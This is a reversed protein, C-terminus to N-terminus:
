SYRNYLCSAAHTDTISVPLTMLTILILVPQFVEMGTLVKNLMQPLFSSTGASDPLSFSCWPETLELSPGGNFSTQIDSPCQPTQAGESRSDQPSFSGWCCPRLALRTTNPQEPGKRLIQSETKGESEVTNQEEGYSVIPDYNREQCRNRKKFKM